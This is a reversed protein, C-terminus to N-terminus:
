SLSWTLEETRQISQKYEWIAWLALIILAVVCKQFYEYRYFSVVTSSVVFNIGSIMVSFGTCAYIAERGRLKRTIWLGSVTTALYPLLMFVGTEVFTMVSHLHGLPLLLALLLLHVAGIVGMRALMVSKLSFRSAMEMEAMNYTVSRVNEAVAALAAFPLLSSITWLMDRKLLCAGVLAIVFVLTSLLWFWIRIYAAQILMFQAASIRAAPFKKIFAKKRVPEPAEFAYKLGQKLDRRM